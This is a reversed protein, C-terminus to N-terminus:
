NGEEETVVTQPDTPPAIELTGYPVVGKLMAEVDVAADGDGSVFVGNVVLTASGNELLLIWKGWKADEEPHLAKVLVGRRGNIEVEARSLLDIGRLKLTSKTFNEAIDDFPSKILAVIVEINREASEFGDFRKSQVLGRAPKFYAGMDPLDVYDATKENKIEVAGAAAVPSCDAALM